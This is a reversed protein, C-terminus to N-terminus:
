SLNLWELNLNLPSIDSKLCISFFLLVIMSNISDRYDRSIFVIVASRSCHEVDINGTFVKFVCNMIM